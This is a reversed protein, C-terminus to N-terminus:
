DTAKNGLITNIESVRNDIAIVRGASVDTAPLDMIKKRENLLRTKENKLREVRGQFQEAIKGLFTGWGM